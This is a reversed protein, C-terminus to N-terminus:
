IESPLSDSFKGFILFSFKKKRSKMFDHSDSDRELYHSSPSCLPNLNNNHHNVPLTNFSLLAVPLNVSSLTIDIFLWSSFTEKKKRRISLLFILNSFFNEVFFWCDLVQSQVTLSVFQQGLVILKLGLHNVTGMKIIIM